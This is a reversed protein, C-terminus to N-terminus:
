VSMEVMFDVRLETGIREGKNFSIKINPHSSLTEEIM